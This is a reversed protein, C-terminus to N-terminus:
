TGAAKAVKMTRSLSTLAFCWCTGGGGREEVGGGEGEGSVGGDESVGKDESRARTEQGRVGREERVKDKDM